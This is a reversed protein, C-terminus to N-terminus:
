EHHRGLLHECGHLLLEIAKEDILDSKIFRARKNIYEEYGTSLNDFVTVDHGQNCAEEVISSGIFGAGGTILVKM